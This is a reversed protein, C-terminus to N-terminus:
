GGGFLRTRFSYAGGNKLFRGFEGLSEYDIKVVKRLPEIKPPPPVYMKYGECKKYKRSQVDMKKLMTCHVGHIQNACTQCKLKNVKKM